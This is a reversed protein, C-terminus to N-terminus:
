RCGGLLPSDISSDCSLSSAKSCPQIFIGLGLGLRSFVAPISQRAHAAKGWLSAGPGRHTSYVVDGGLGHHGKFPAGDHRGQIVVVTAINVVQLVHAIVAVAM